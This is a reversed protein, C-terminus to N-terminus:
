ICLATCMTKLHELEAKKTIETMCVDGLSMLRNCYVSDEFERGAAKGECRDCIYDM